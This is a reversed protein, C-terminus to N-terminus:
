KKEGSKKDKGLEEKLEDFSKYESLDDEDINAVSEKLEELVKKTNEPSGHFSIEYYITDLIDLL